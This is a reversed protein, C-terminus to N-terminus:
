RPDRGARIPGQRRTRSSLASRAAASRWPIDVAYVLEANASAGALGTDPAAAPVIDKEGALGEKYHEATLRPPTSSSRTASCRRGATWQESQCAWKGVNDWRFVVRERPRLSYRMEHGRLAQFGAGDDAGFLAANSESAGWGAFVPGYPAERRALDHDRACEDGGILTENERDLYFVSEDIDLFQYRNDVVAEGPCPRALGASESRAHVETKGLGAHQVALLRLRGHRRVPETRVLQVDQGPRSSMTPSCRVATTATTGRRRGSSCRKRRTTRRAARPSPSCITTTGWNARDNAIVKPWLVTADGTNEITVSLNPQFAVQINDNFRTHTNEFDLNGGLPITYEHQSARVVEVRKQPPGAFQELGGLTSDPNTSAVEYKRGNTRSRFQGLGVHVIRQPDLALLPGPGPGSTRTCHMAPGLPQGDEYVLLGSQNGSERDGDEGFDMGAIYCFGIEQNFAANPLLV